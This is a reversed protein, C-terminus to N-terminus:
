AITSMDAPNEYLIFSNAIKPSIFIKAPKYNSIDYYGLIKKLYTSQQLCITKKNFDVDVEMSLYYFVNGLDTM